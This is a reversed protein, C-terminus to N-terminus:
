KYLGKLDAKLQQCPDGPGMPLLEPSHKQLWAYFPLVDTENREESPRAQFLQRVRALRILEPNAESGRCM